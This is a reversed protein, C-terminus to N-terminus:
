QPGRLLDSILKNIYEIEEQRRKVYRYHLRLLQIWIIALIWGTVALPWIHLKIGYALALGALISVPFATVLAFRGRRTLRDLLSLM